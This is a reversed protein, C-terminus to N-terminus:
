PTRPGATSNNGAVSISNQDGSLTLGAFSGMSVIDDNGNVAASALELLTV